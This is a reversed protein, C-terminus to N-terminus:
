SRLELKNRSNRCVFLTIVCIEKHIGLESCYNKKKLQM